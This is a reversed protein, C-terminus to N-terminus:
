SGRSASKKNLETSLPNGPNEDAMARCLAAYAKQVRDAGKEAPAETGLENRIVAEAKVIV